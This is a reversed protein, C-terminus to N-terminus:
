VILVIDRFVFILIVPAASNAGIGNTATCDDSGTVDPSARSASALREKDLPTALM